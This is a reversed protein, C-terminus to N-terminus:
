EGTGTRDASKLAGIYSDKDNGGIVLVTRGEEPEVADMHLRQARQAMVKLVLETSKPDGMMAAQWHAKQLADLRDLELQLVGEREERSIDMAERSMKSSIANSVQVPSMGMAEAIQRNTYGEVRMRYCEEARSERVKGNLPTVNKGKTM